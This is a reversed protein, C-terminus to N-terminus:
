NFELENLVKIGAPTSIGHFYIMVLRNTAKSLDFSGDCACWDFIIGHRISHFDAVIQEPVTGHKIWKNKILSNAAAYTDNMFDSTHNMIHFDDGRTAVTKNKSTYYNSAFAPGLDIISQNALRDQIIFVAYPNDSSKQIIAKGYASYNEEMYYNLLASKENFHHFFSGNSVGAASCIEKTTIQDFDKQKLLEVFASLIKQKTTNSKQQQLNSQNKM